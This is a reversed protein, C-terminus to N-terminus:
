VAAVQVHFEAIPLDIKKEKAKRIQEAFEMADDSTELIKQGLESQSLFSRMRSKKEGTATNIEDISTYSKKLQAFHEPNESM